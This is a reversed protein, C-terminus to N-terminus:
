EKVRDHKGIEREIADVPERAAKEDEREEHGKDANREEKNEEAEVPKIEGEESDKEDKGPHADREAIVAEKRM